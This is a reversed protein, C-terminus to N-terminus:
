SSPGPFTFHPLLDRALAATAQLDCSPPRRGAEPLLHRPPGGRPPSPPLTVTRRPPLAATRHASVHGQLVSRQCRDGPGRAAQPLGLEPALGAAAAPHPVPPLGPSSQQLSPDGHLHQQLRLAPRGQSATPASPSACARGPEPTKM